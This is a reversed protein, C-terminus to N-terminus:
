GNEPKQNEMSHNDIGPSANKQSFSITKKKVRINNKLTQFNKTLGMDSSVFAPDNM